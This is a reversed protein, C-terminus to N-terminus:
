VQMKMIIIETVCVAWLMVFLFAILHFMGRTDWVGLLFYQKGILGVYYVLKIM